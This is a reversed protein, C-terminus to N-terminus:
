ARNGDAALFACGHGDQHNGTLSTGVRVVRERERRFRHRHHGSIEGPEVTGDGVDGTTCREHQAASRGREVVVAPLPRQGAASDVGAFGDVLCCEAFQVLLEAQM